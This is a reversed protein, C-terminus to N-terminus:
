IHVRRTGTLKTSRSVPTSGAVAQKPLLFEVVSNSEGAFKSRPVLNSSAVVVKSPYPEVMSSDGSLM